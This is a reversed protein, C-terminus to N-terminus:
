GVMIWIAHDKPEESSDDKDYSHRHAANIEAMESRSPRTYQTPYARSPRPTGLPGEEARSSLSFTPSYIHISGAPPRPTTQRSSGTSASSVSGHGTELHDRTQSQRLSHSYNQQSLCVAPPQRVPTSRVSSGGLTNTFSTSHDGTTM